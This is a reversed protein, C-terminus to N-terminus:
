ERRRRAYVFILSPPLVIAVAFLIAGIFLQDYIPKGLEKDMSVTVTPLISPISYFPGTFVVTVTSGLQAPGISDNSAEKGNILARGYSPIGNIELAISSSNNMFLPLSSNFTLTYRGSVIGSLSFSFSTLNGNMSQSSHTVVKSTSNEIEIHVTGRGEGEVILSANRVPMPLLLIQSFSGTTTEETPPSNYITVTNVPYVINGIFHERGDNSMSGILPFDYTTVLSVGSIVSSSPSSTSSDISPSLYMGQPISSAVPALILIGVVVIAAIVSTQAATSKRLKRMSGERGKLSLPLFALLSIAYLSGAISNIWSPYSGWPYINRALIKMNLDSFYLIFGAHTITQMVVFSFFTSLWMMGIYIWRKLYLSAIIALPIMAAMYSPLNYPALAAFLVGQILLFLILTKDNVNKRKILLYSLSLVISSGYYLVNYLQGPVVSGKGFVNLFDFIDYYPVSSYPSLYASPNNPSLSLQGSKLFLFFITLQ